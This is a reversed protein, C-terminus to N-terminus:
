SGFILHSLINLVGSWSTDSVCVKGQGLKSGLM